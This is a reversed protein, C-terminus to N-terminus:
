KIRAQLVARNVLADEFTSETEDNMIMQRVEDLIMEVAIMTMMPSDKVPELAAEIYTVVPVIFFHWIYKNEFEKKRQAAEDNDEIYVYRLAEIVDACRDFPICVSEKEKKKKKVTRCIPGDVEITDDFCDKINRLASELDWPDICHRSLFVRFRRDKEALQQAETSDENFALWSLSHLKSINEKLQERM